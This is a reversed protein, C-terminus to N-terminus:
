RKLLGILRQFSEKDIPPSEQGKGLKVNIDIPTSAPKCDLTGTEELLDLIYKYQSIFIGEKSHAVEIGLFYKLTGLAKIDFQRALGESIDKIEEEDNGTILIDDVYVILVTMGGKATHKIFLTHDGNSQKYGCDRM